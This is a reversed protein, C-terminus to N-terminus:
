LFLVTAALGTFAGLVTYIGAYKEARLRAERLREEILAEYLDCLAKEGKIDAKGLESFFSALCARDEGRLATKVEPRELALLLSDQCSAGGEKESFNELYCPLARRNESIYSATVAGFADAAYLISLRIYAIFLRSKELETVRALTNKSLLAGTLTSSILIIGAALLKIM